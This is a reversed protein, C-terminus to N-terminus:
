IWFFYGRVLGDLYGDIAKGKGHEVCLPFIPPAPYEWARRKTPTGERSGWTNLLFMPGGWDLGMKRLVRAM